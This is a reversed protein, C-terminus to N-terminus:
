FLCFICYNKIIMHIRKIPVIQYIVEMVVTNPFMTRDYIWGNQCKIIEYNKATYDIPELFSESKDKLTSANLTHLSAMIETYNRAYMECQAYVTHGDRHVM